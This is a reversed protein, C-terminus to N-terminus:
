DDLGDLSEQVKEVMHPMGIEAYLDRAQVWFARAAALDGRTDALIGLNTYNKAMGEKRGLEQNLKLAQEYYREAAALDGRIQSLNGLNTYDAAMGEKHGLEQDLKLSKQYYGEAATLDGRTAVIKGLNGLAAAKAVDDKEAEALALVTDYEAQAEKLNGLRHHLIGCYNHAEKHDPSLQTVRTYAALAGRPDNMYSVTGRGLYLAILDNVPGNEYEDILGDFRAALTPDDPQAVCADLLAQAEQALHGGGRAISQALELAARLEKVKDETERLTEKTKALDDYAHVAKALAENTIKDQPDRSNHTNVVKDRGVNNGAGSHTQTLATGQVAKDKTGFVSNLIWKFIGTFWGVLAVVVGTVVPHAEILTILDGISM